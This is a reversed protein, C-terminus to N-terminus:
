QNGGRLMEAILQQLDQEPISQEAVAVRPALGYPLKTGSGTFGHLGERMNMVGRNVGRGLTSHLLWNLAGRDSPYFHSGGVNGAAAADGAAGAPGRFTEAARQAQKLRMFEAFDAPSQTQVAKEGARRLADAQAKDFKFSPNQQIVEQPTSSAYGAAVRDNISADIASKVAESKNLPLPNEDIAIDHRSGPNPRMLDSQLRESPPTPAEAKGPTYRQTGRPSVAGSQEFLARSGEPGAMAGRATETTGVVEPLGLSRTFSSLSTDAAAAHPGMGTAAVQTEPHTTARTEPVGFRQDRVGAVDATVAPADIKVGQQSLYDTLEGKQASASDRLFELEQAREAPSLGGRAIDKGLVDRTAEGAAEQSGYAEKFVRQAESSNPAMVRTRSKNAQNRWYASAEPAAQLAPGALGLLNEPAMEVDRMAKVREAPTKDSTTAAAVLQNGLSADLVGALMRSQLPGSKAFYSLPAVAPGLAMSAPIAMANTAIQGGMYANPNEQRARENQADYYAKASKFRTGFDGEGQGLVADLLASAPAMTMGRGFSDLSSNFTKPAEWKGGDGVVKDNDGWAM